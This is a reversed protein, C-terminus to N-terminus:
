VELWEKMLLTKGATVQRILQVVQETESRSMRSTPEDLLIVDAGGAITIGIELARQEAYSLLGAPVHRRAALNLQELVTEVRERVERAAALWVASRRLWVARAPATAELPRATAPVSM